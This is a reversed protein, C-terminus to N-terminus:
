VFNWKASVNHNADNLTTSKKLTAGKRIEALLQSRGDQMPSINSMSLMPPPPPPPAMGSMPPPPPPPASMKISLEKESDMEIQLKM